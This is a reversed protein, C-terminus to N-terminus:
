FSGETRMVTLESEDPALGRSRRMQRIVMLVTQIQGEDLPFPVSLLYKMRNDNPNIPQGFYVEMKYKLLDVSKDEM